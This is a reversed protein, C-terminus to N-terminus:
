RGDEEIAAYSLADLYWGPPLAALLATIGHGWRQIETMSAFYCWGAALRGDLPRAPIDPRPCVLCWNSLDHDDGNHGCAACVNSDPDFGAKELATRLAATPDASM